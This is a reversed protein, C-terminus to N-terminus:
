CSFKLVLLDETTAIETLTVNTDRQLQALSHNLKAQATEVIENVTNDILARPITIGQVQVQTVIIKVRGDQPVFYFEAAPRLNIKFNWARATLQATLRARRESLVNLAADNVKIQFPGPADATAAAKNQSQANENALQERLQQNLFSEVLLVTVAPNATSRNSEPIPVPSPDRLFFYLAVGAAILTGAIGAALGVLFDNTM